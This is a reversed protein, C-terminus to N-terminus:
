DATDKEVRRRIIAHAINQNIRELVIDRDMELIRSLGDAIIDENGDDRIQGPSITIQEVTMSTALIQGNRDYINGRQAPILRDRTQQEVAQRRLQDGQVIQIWGARVILSALVVLFVALTVTIRARQKRTLKSARNVM